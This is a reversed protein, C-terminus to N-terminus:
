KMKKKYLKDVYTRKEELEPTWWPNNKDILKPTSLPCEADLCKNINTYFKELAKEM